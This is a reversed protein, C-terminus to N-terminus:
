SVLSSPSTIMGLVQTTHLPYTRKLACIKLSVLLVFGSGSVRISRDPPPKRRNLGTDRGEYGSTRFGLRCSGTYETAVVKLRADMHM